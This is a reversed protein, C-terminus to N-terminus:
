HDWEPYCGEWVLKGRSTKFVYHMGPKWGDYYVCQGHWVIKRVYEETCDDFCLTHSVDRFFRNKNVDSSYGKVTTTGDFGSKVVYYCLDIKM